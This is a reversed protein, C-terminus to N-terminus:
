IRQEVQDAIGLDRQFLDLVEALPAGLSGAMGLIEQGAGDLGGGARKPLANGIGDAEGDGFLRQAGAKALPQNIMVGIDEGAIAAQHFADAVLRDREGPALLQRPQDHQPVIVVDGDVAGHVDGIGGVLGGAEAGGAPLHDLDVAVVGLLDVGRQGLRFGRGLRRHDGAFGM